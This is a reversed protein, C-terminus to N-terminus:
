ILVLLVFGHWVMRHDNEDNRDLAQCWRRLRSVLPNSLNWQSGRRLATWDCRGVSPLAGWGLCSMPWHARGAPQILSRHAQRSWLKLYSSWISPNMLLFTNLGLYCTKSISIFVSRDLYIDNFCQGSLAVWKVYLDNSDIAVSRVPPQGIYPQCALM